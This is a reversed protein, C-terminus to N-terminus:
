PNRTPSLHIVVVDECPPTDRLRPVYTEYAPLFRQIYDRADEDSLGTLGQQRRAREADVRWRVISDTGEVDLQVFMDLHSTWAAYGDLCANPAQLRADPLETDLVKRFGLMWGELIVLDKPGEVSRFSAAPARDGRGGHASKDYIPLRLTEGAGLGVLAALVRSGLPVDHTGPYGRHEMYPNGPHRGALAVQEARTLYFDDISLAVGPHGIDALADVLAAALTSKGCGQPGQIGVVFARPRPKVLRGHLALALPAYYSDVRVPDKVRHHLARVLSHM